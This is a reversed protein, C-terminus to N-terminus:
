SVIAATEELQDYFYITNDFTLIFNDNGDHLKEVSGLAEGGFMYFEDIRICLVANLLHFLILGGTTAIYNTM